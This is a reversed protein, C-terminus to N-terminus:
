KKLKKKQVESVIKVIVSLVFMACFIVIATICLLVEGLYELGPLLLDSHDIPLSDFYRAIGEAIVVSLIEAFFLGGWYLNRKTKTAKVFLLIQLVFLLPLLLLIM